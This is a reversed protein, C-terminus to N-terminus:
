CQLELGDHRHHKKIALGIRDKEIDFQTYFANTFSFGLVYDSDSSSRGIHTRCMDCCTDTERPYSWYHPPVTVTINGLQIQFSTLRDMLCCPIKYTNDPEDYVAYWHKEFEDAQENPLGIVDTSSSLVAKAHKSVKFCLDHLFKAHRVPVAWNGSGDNEAAKVYYLKGQIADTDVGGLVLYGAPTDDKTHRKSITGWGGSAVGTSPTSNSATTQSFGSRSSTTYMAFQSSGMGYGQQYANPVFGSDPIDRKAYHEQVTNLDVNRGLGLFGDFGQDFREMRYADGFPMNEVTLGAYRFTDLCLTTYAVGRGYDMTFKKGVTVVTTSRSANYSKRDLCNGNVCQTGRIWSFGTSTDLALTLEQPPNGVEIVAGMMGNQVLQAPASIFESQSTRKQYLPIKHIAEVTASLVLAALYFLFVSRM